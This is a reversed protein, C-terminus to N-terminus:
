KERDYLTVTPRLIIFLANRQVDSSDNGFRRGTGELAKRLIAPENGATTVSNYQLGGIVVTKGAQVQVLDKLNQKQVLPQTLTGVQNGASLEVFQLIQDLDVEVDVTILEADADYYPNLTLKLGTEVTDTESSGTSNTNNSSSSVGSVYPVEQGSQLTVESGSLTKLSVHQTVDTQGFTSLFGIANSITLAGYTGFVSGTSTKSLSLAAGTLSAVSGTEGTGISQSLATTNTSVNDALLLGSPTTDFAVKFADWDFGMSSNDNLSLSVVAVQMNVVALNRSMRDLFPGILEDQSSPSATYILKGGRISTVVNEAGLEQIDSAVSDMVDQNQPLSLSYRQQDSLYILGDEYWAVLGMGNRLASFLEGVTGRFNKFPLRKQLIGEEQTPNSWQFAVQIDISGLTYILSELNGDPPFTIDIPMRKISNPIQPRATVARMSSAPVKIREIAIVSDETMKSIATQRAATLDPLTNSKPLQSACGVLFVSSGLVCLM